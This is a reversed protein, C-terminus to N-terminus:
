LSRLYHIIDWTMEGGRKRRQSETMGRVFYSEPLEGYWGRVSSIEDDSVLGKLGLGWTKPPDKEPRFIGEITGRHAPMRGGGLGLHITRYIRAPDSGCLYNDKDNLPRLPEGIPLDNWKLWSVAAAHAGRADTGHCRWCGFALYMIRGRKRSSDNDATEPEVHGLPQPPARWEPSLTKVYLTLSRREAPGLAAIAKVGKHTGRDLATEIDADSPIPRPRGATTACLFVAEPLPTPAIRLGAAQPGPKGGEGHCGACHAAFLKAGAEASAGEVPALVPAPIAKPPPEADAHVVAADVVPREKRAEPACASPLALVAAIVVHIRM